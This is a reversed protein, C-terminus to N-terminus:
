RIPDLYSHNNGFVSICIADTLSNSFVLLLEILIDSLIRVAAATAVPIAVPASKSQIM